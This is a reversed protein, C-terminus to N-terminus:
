RQQEQQQPRQGQGQGQGTTKTSPTTRINARLQEKRSRNRRSPVKPIKNEPPKLQVVMSPIKTNIPHYGPCNSCSCHGTTRNTDNKYKFLTPREDAIPYCVNIHEKFNKWMPHNTINRYLLLDDGDDSGEGEIEEETTPLTSRELDIVYRDPNNNVDQITQFGVVENWKFSIKDNDRLRCEYGRHGFGDCGNMYPEYCESGKPCVLVFGDSYRSSITYKNKTTTATAAAALRSPSADPPRPAPEQEAKRKRNRDSTPGHQEVEEEGRRSLIEKSICEVEKKADVCHHKIRPKKKSKTNPNDTPDDMFLCNTESYLGFEHSGLIEVLYYKGGRRNKNAKETQNRLIETRVDPPLRTTHNKMMANCKGEHLIGLLLASWYPKTSSSRASVLSKSELRAWISSYESGRRRLEYIPVIMQAIYRDLRDVIRKSLAHDMNQNEERRGNGVAPCCNRVLVDFKSVTLESNSQIKETLKRELGKLSIFVTELYDNDRMRMANDGWIPEIDLVDVRGQNDIFSRLSRLAEKLYKGKMIFSGSLDLRNKRDQTRSRLSSCELCEWGGYPIEELSPIHCYSHFAGECGRCSLMTGSRDCINCLRDDHDDGGDSVDNSGMMHEQWLCDFFEQMHFGVAVYTTDNNNSNFKKCNEFILNVDSRIQHITRYEKHKISGRVTSLDMPNDIIENYRDM